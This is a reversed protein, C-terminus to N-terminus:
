KWLRMLHANITVLDGFGAMRWRSWVWLDPGILDASRVRLIPFVGLVMDVWVQVSGPGVFNM